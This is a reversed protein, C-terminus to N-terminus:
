HPRSRYIKTAIAILLAAIVYAGSSWMIIGSMRELAPDSGSSILGVLLTGVGGGVWGLTNMLGATSSHEWPTVFEFVTAFIGADYAGKCLGFCVMAIIIDGTESVKGMAVVSAAGLVLALSQVMMRAGKIHKALRDSLLGAMPASVASATQIAAVASFGSALLSLHFKEFLFTPAWVLLVAAVSNAFAFGGMMLLLDPRSILGTLTKMIGRQSQIAAEVECSKEYSRRPERLFIWLVLSLLIGAFGFGYFAWRWGYHQALLAGLGGGAITGIYVASQHISLATSRTGAGHLNSLLSIASPFYVSEGLGILARSAVFQWLRSCIGTVVTLLSWLICGGLILGKRSRRDGAFGAIPASAAYVWMFSSGILGLQAKNFGFEQKLL